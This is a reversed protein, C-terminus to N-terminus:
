KEKFDIQIGTRHMERKKKKESDQHKENAKLLYLDDEDKFVLM